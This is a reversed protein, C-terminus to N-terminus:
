ILNNINQNLVKQIDAIEMTVPMGVYSVKTTFVINNATEAEPKIAEIKTSTGCSILLYSTLLNWILIKLKM